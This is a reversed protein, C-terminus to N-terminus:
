SLTGRSLREKMHGLDAPCLGKTGRVADIGGDLNQRLEAFAMAVQRRHMDREAIQQAIQLAVLLGRDGIVARDRKDIVGPGRM